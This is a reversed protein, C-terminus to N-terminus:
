SLGCWQSEGDAALEGVCCQVYYVLPALASLGLRLTHLAQFLLASCLCSVFAVLDEHPLCFLLPNAFAALTLKLCIDQM